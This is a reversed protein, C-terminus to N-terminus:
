THQQKEEKKSSKIKLYLCKAVFLTSIAPFVTKQFCLKTLGFRLRDMKATRLFFEYQGPFRDFHDHEGHVLERRAM